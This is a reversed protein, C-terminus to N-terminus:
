GLGWHIEDPAVPNQHSNSSPQESAIIAAGVQAKRLAITDPKAEGMPLDPFGVCDIIRSPDFGEGVASQFPMKQAPKPEPM